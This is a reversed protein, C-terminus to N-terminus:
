APLARRSAAFRRAGVVLAVALLVAGLAWFVNHLRRQRGLRQTAQEMKAIGEKAMGAKRALAVLETARAGDHQELALAWQFSITMADKPAKAALTTSCAQLAPVDHTRLAVECKLRQTLVEAEPEKALHVMVADIEKRQADGLSGNEALLLKVFTAYDDPTVGDLTLAQRCFVLARARDHAAALEECARGFSYSRQPVAKALAMYYRAAAAHNGKDKAVKAKFLLDQLLYGFELPDRNQREVSPISAEPNADDIKYNSLMDSGPQPEARAAGPAAAMAAFLAATVVAGASLAGGIGRAAARARRRSVVAHALTGLLGLALLIRLAWVWAPARRAAHALAEEAQESGAAVRALDALCAELGDSDNLQRALDCRAMYGWPENPANRVVGETILAATTLEGMSPRTTVGMYAAVANRADEPIGGIVFARECNVRADIERRRELAVRCAGRAPVANQPAVARARAYFVAAEPLKGTRRADEAQQCLEYAAPNSSALLAREQLDPDVSRPLQATPPTAPGAGPAQARAAGSLTSSALMSLALGALANTKPRM